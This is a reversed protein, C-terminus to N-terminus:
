PAEEVVPEIPAEAPAEAASDTLPADDATETEEPEMGEKYSIDAQARAQDLQGRLVENLDENRIEQAALPTVESERTEVPRQDVIVSVTVRGQSPVVFPEGPPLAIIQQLVENPVVASDLTNNGRTFEVNFSELTEEVEELSNDSELAQFVGSDGPFAFVIQDVLYATREKYKGPNEDLYLQVEEGSPIRITEAQKQSFYQVLAEERLRRERMIFEPERDLAEEKALQAMLRRDIIRQLIQRRVTEADSNPVSPLSDIEANLEAQTIEEGNVVALVQGTPESNCAYLALSAMGIFAVRATSHHM